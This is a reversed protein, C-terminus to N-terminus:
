PMVGPVPGLFQRAQLGSRSTVTSWPIARWAPIAAALCAAPLHQHGVVVQGAARQGVRIGDDIGVLGAVGEGAFAIAPTLTIEVQQQCQRGRRPTAASRAESSSKTAHAATASM